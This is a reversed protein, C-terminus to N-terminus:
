FRAYTNDDFTANEDLLASGFTIGNQVFLPGFGLDVHRERSETDLGCTLREVELFSAFVTFRLCRLHEGDWCRSHLSIGEM